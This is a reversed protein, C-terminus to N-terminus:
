ITKSAECVVSKQGRGGAGTSDTLMRTSAHNSSGVPSEERWASTSLDAAGAADAELTVEHGAKELLIQLFERMSQEDDVVLISAM